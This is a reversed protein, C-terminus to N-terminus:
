KKSIPCPLTLKSSWCAAPPKHKTVQRSPHYRKMTWSSADTSKGRLRGTPSKLRNMLPALSRALASYLSVHFATLQPNPSLLPFLSLMHSPILEHINLLCQLSLAPPCSPDRLPLCLMATATATVTADLCPSYNPSRFPKSSEFHSRPYFKQIMSMSTSITKATSHSWCTAQPTMAQFYCVGLSAGFPSVANQLSNTDRIKLDVSVLSHCWTCYFGRIATTLSAAKKAATCTECGTYETCYSAATYLEQSDATM